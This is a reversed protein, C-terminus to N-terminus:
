TLTRRTIALHRTTPRAQKQQVIDHKKVKKLAFCHKREGAARLKSCHHQNLHVLVMRYFAGTGFTTAVDFHSLFPVGSAETARALSSLYERVVEPKAHSSEIGSASATSEVLGAEASIGTVDVQCDM